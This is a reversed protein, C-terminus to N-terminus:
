HKQTSAIFYRQIESLPLIRKLPVALQSSFPATTTVSLFGNSIFHQGQDLPRGVKQRVDEM